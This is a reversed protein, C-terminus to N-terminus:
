TLGRRGWDGEEGGDDGHTGAYLLKSTPNGWFAGLLLLRCFLLFLLLFCVRWPLLFRASRFLSTKMVYLPQTMTATAIPANTPYTAKPLEVEDVM